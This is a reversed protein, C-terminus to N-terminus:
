RSEATSSLGILIFRDEEESHEPDRMLTTSPARPKKSGCEM